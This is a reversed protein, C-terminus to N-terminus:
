VNQSLNIQFVISLFTTNFDPEHNTSYVVANRFNALSM